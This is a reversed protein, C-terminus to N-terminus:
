HMRPKLVVKRVSFHPLQWHRQLESIRCKSPCTRSSKWRFSQPL